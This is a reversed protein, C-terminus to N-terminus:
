GEVTCKPVTAFCEGDHRCSMAAETDAHLDGAGLDPVHPHVHAHPPESGTPFSWCPLFSSLSFAQEPDRRRAPTALFLVPRTAHVPFYSNGSLFSRTAQVPFSPRLIVLVPLLLHPALLLAGPLTGLLGNGCFDSHGLLPLESLQPGHLVHPYRIRGQLGDPADGRPRALAECAAALAVGALDLGFVVHRPGLVGGAGRHVLAVVKDELTRETEGM